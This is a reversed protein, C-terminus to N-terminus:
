RRISCVIDVSYKILYNMEDQMYMCTLNEEEIFDSWM